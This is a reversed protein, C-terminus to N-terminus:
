NKSNNVIVKGKIYLTKKNYNSANTYLTISKLQAGRRHESNFTIKVEGKEGPKVPESTYQPITCGCGSVADQIVLDGTGKNKFHYVHSVKEGQNLSGFNYFDNEFVIKANGKSNGSKQNQCGMISGIIIFSLILLFAYKKRKNKNFM